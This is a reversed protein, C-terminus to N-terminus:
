TKSLTGVSAPALSCVITAPSRSGPQTPSSQLQTEAPSRVILVKASETVMTVSRPSKGTMWYGGRAKKQQVSRPADDPRAENTQDGGTSVGHLSERDRGKRRSKGHQSHRRHKGARPSHIHRRSTLTFAFAFRQHWVDGARATRGAAAHQRVLRQQRCGGLAVDRRTTKFDGARREQPQHVVGRASGLAEGDVTVRHATDELVIDIVVAASVGDAEGVLAPDGGVRIAALVVAVQVLIPEVAAEIADTGVINGLGDLQTCVADVVVAVAGDIVALPRTSVLAFVIAHKLRQPDGAVVVVARGHGDLIGQPRPDDRKTLAVGGQRHAGDVGDAQEELLLLADGGADLGLNGAGNVEDQDLRGVGVFRGVGHALPAIDLWAEHNGIGGPAGLGM